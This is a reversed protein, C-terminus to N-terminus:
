GEQPTMHPSPRDVKGAIPRGHLGASRYEVVITKNEVTLRNAQKQGSIIRHGQAANEAPKRNRLAPTRRVAFGQAPLALDSSFIQMESHSM